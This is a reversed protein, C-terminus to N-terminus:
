SVWCTLSSIVAAQGMKETKEAAVTVNSMGVSLSDQAENSLSVRWSYRDVLNGRSELQYATCTDSYIQTHSGQPDRCMSINLINCREGTVLTQGATFAKERSSHPCVTPLCCDGYMESGDM